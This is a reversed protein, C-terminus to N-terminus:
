RETQFQANTFGEKKIIRMDIYPVKEQKLNQKTSAKEWIWQIEVNLEVLWFISVGTLLMEYVFLTM